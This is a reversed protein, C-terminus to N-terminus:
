NTGPPPQDNDNNSPDQDPDLQRRISAILDPNQSALNQALQRGSNIFNM